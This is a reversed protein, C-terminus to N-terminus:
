KKLDENWIGSGAIWTAGSKMKCAKVFSTKPTAKTEVGPKKWVYDVWAGGKKAKAEKDFASFLKFGNDDPMDKLPKGILNPKIPHMIMTMTDNTDQVWIYNDGCNPFKLSDPWTAKAEEGKEEITKCVEEVKKQAIEKSCDAMVSASSLIALLALTTKFM